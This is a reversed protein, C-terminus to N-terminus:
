AKYCGTTALGFCYLQNAEIKWLSALAGPGEALSGWFGAVCGASKLLQQRNIGCSPNASALVRCVEESFAHLRSAWRIVRILLSVSVRKVRM